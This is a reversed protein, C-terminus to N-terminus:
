IVKLDCLYVDCTLICSLMAVVYLSVFERRIQMRMPLHFLALQGRIVKEHVSLYFLFIIFFM